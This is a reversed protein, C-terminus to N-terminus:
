KKIAELIAKAQATRETEPELKIFKELNEIAKASDGKNLHAYAIRLYPDPWEPKIQIAIDFYRIAEDIQQNSFYIEAVNYPLNEDLPAMEISKKFYEQAEALKDQKLFCLGIAALGKAGMTKGMASDAVAQEILQNYKEVAKDYEGKERYCDGINLLIQYAGPNKALFEEYLTLATDYKGDKFFANGEELIQFTTEDQVVGSNAAQKALKMAIKPNKDLQRVYSSVTVPLFGKASATVVWTGTGVGNVAWNGKKDTTAEFTTGGPQNFVLTVKAGVIPKDDSDHVSGGLRGVGRGAQGLAIGASLLLVVTLAVAKTFIDKNM